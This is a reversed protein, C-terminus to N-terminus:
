VYPNFGGDCEGKLLREVPYIFPEVDSGAILRIYDKYIGCREKYYSPDCGQRVGEQAPMNECRVDEFPQWSCGSVAVEQKYGPTMNEREQYSAFNRYGHLLAPCVTNVAGGKTTPIIKLNAPRSEYFEGGARSSTPMTTPPDNKTQNKVITYVALGLVMAVVLGFFFLMIRTSKSSKSSKNYDSM